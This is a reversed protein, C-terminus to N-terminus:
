IVFSQLVFSIKRDNADVGEQRGCPRRGYTRSFDDPCRFFFFFELDLRQLQEMLSVAMSGICRKRGQLLCRQVVLVHEFLKHFRGFATRQPLDCMDQVLNAPLVSSIHLWLRIFVMDLLDIVNFIIASRSYSDTLGVPLLTDM